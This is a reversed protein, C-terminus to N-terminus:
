REGSLQVGVANGSRLPRLKFTVMMKKKQEPEEQVGERLDNDETRKTILRM